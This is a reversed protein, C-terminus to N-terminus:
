RIEDFSISHSEITSSFIYFLKKGVQKAGYQSAAMEYMQAPLSRLHVPLM